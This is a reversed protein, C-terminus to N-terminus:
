EGAAPESLDDPAAVVQSAAADWSGYRSSVDVGLEGSLEELYENTAAAQEEDTGGPALQQGLEVRLLFTRASDEIGSAPIWEGEAQAFGVTLAELGGADLILRDVEGQSVSVGERAAAVDVLQATVRNQVLARLLAQGDPPAAQIREVVDLVEAADDHVQRETIRVDGVLAASGAEAPDCGTIGPVLVTLTLVVAAPGAVRRLARLPRHSTV